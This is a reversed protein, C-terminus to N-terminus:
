PLHNRVKSSFLGCKYVNVLCTCVGCSGKTSITIWMWGREVQLPTLKLMSGMISPPSPSYFLNHSVPSRLDTKIHKKPRELRCWLHSCLRLHVSQVSWCLHACQATASQWIVHAALWLQMLGSESKDTARLSKEWKMCKKNEGKRIWRKREKLCRQRSLLYTHVALRPCIYM